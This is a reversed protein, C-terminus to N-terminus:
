PTGPRTVPTMPVSSDLLAERSAIAYGNYGDILYQTGDAGALQQMGTNADSLVLYRGPGAEGIISIARYEGGFWGKRPSRDLSGDARHYVYLWQEGEETCYLLVDEDYVGWIYAGEPLQALVQDETQGLPRCILRSQDDVSWLADYALDSRALFFGPESYLEEEQGTVPDLAYLVTRLWPSLEERNAVSYHDYVPEVPCDEALLTRTILLRNQWVGMLNGWFKDWRTVTELTRTTLDLRVLFNEDPVKPDDSIQSYRFYLGDGDSALGGDWVGIATGQPFDYVSECNSGDLDSRLLVPTDLIMGSWAWYLSDEDAFLYVNGNEFNQPKGVIEETARAFDFYHAGIGGDGYRRGGEGYLPERWYLGESNRGDIWHLARAPTQTPTPKALESTEPTATAQPKETSAPTANGRGCGTLIAACLIPTMVCLNWRRM